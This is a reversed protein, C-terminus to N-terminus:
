NELCEDQDNSSLLGLLAAEIDSGTIGSPLPHQVTNGSGDMISLTANLSQMPARQQQHIHSTEDKTAQVDWYDSISGVASVEISGDVLLTANVQM